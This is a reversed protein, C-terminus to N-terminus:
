RKYEAIVEPTHLKKALAKSMADSKSFDDGPMVWSRHYKKSREEGDEFVRHIRRVAIRGMSDIMRDWTYREELGVGTIIKKEAKFEDKAKKTTIAAVVEKSREDFGDMNNIDKPTYPISKNESIVEGDKIIKVIKYTQLNGWETVGHEFIIQKKPM